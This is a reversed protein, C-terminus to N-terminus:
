EEGEEDHVPLGQDNVILSQGPILEDEAVTSSVQDRGHGDAAPSSPKSGKSGGVPSKVQRELRRVQTELAKRAKEAREAAAAQD